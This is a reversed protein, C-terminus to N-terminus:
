QEEKPCREKWAALARDARECIDIPTFHLGPVSTGGQLIRLFAETWFESDTM